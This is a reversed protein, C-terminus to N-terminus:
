EYPLTHNTWDVKEGQTVSSERERGERVNEGDWRKEERERERGAPANSVKYTDM